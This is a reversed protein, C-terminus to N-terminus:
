LKKTTQAVKWISLKSPKITADILGFIRAILELLAVILSWLLYKPSSWDINSLYVGLIRFNSYTIVQYGQTSKIRTHGAYNRRRRSLFERITEPGRNYVLAKPCYIIKYDQGIILPEINAEDTSSKIPIREFIKKFALLEGVKPKEPFQLNIRHHLSWMLHNAYGLFTNPNNKPIVRCGVLGVHKQSLSQLILEFCSPAPLIDASAL